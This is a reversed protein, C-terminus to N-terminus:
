VEVISASVNLVALEFDRDLQHILVEYLLILCSTRVVTFLDINTKQTVFGHPNYTSVLTESFYVTEM